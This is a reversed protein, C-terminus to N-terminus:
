ARRVAARETASSGTNRFSRLGTGKLAQERLYKDNVYRKYLIRQNEANWWNVLHDARCRKCFVPFNELRTTSTVKLIKSHCVPCLGWGKEDIRLFNDPIPKEEQQQQEPAANQDPLSVEGKHELPKGQTEDQKKDEAIVDVMCLKCFAEASRRLTDAIHKPELGEFSQENAKTVVGAFDYLMDYYKIETDASEFADQKREAMSNGKYPLAGCWMHM